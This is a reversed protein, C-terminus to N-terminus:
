HQRCMIQHPLMNFYSAPAPSRQKNKQQILKRLDQNSMVKRAGTLFPHHLLLRASLRHKPDRVFCKNLFDKGQECLWEPIEPQRGKQIEMIVEDEDKCESWPLVGTLMEVVTCGLSWVDMAPSVKGALLVEPAMYNLTGSFTTTTSGAEPTKMALGFDALKFRRMKPDSRVNFMLINDPKVDCHTYGRSHILALSNLLGAACVRVHMEPIGLEGNRRYGAISNTLTGLPAYELFLDYNTPGAGGGFCQIIGKVGRFQRLIQHENFLSSAVEVPASKVALPPLKPNSHVVMFVEAYGGKGLRNGRSWEM